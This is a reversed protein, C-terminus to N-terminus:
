YRKLWLIVGKWVVKIIDLIVSKEKINRVFYMYIAVLNRLRRHFLLLDIYLDRSGVVMHYQNGIFTFDGGMEILFARVKNVLQM